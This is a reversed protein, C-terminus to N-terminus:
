HAGGDDARAMPNGTWGGVSSARIQGRITVPGPSLRHNIRVANAANQSEPQVAGRRNVNPDLFHGIAANEDAYGYHQNMPSHSVASAFENVIRLVDLLMAPDIPQGANPVNERAIERLQGICTLATGSYVSAVDHFYGSGPIGRPDITRRLLAMRAILGGFPAHGFIIGNLPYRLGMQISYDSITHALNIRRTDDRELM